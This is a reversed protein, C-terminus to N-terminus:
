PAPEAPVVRALRRLIDRVAERRMESALQTQEGGTGLVDTESFRLDRHINVTQPSLWVGGDPGSLSFRLMYHLGYQLARGSSDVAQVRRDFSENLLRLLGHPEDAGAEVLRVGQARQARRLQPAIRTAPQADAVALVRLEPPIEVAGRLHFGCATLTMSILILLLRMFFNYKIGPRSTQTMGQAPLTGRFAVL